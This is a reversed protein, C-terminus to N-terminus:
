PDICGLPLSTEVDCKAGVDVYRLRLAHGDIDVLTFGALAFPWRFRRAILLPSLRM